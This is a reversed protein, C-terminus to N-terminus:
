RGVAKLLAGTNSDLENRLTAVRGNLRKIVQAFQLNFDDTLNRDCEEIMISLRQIRYVSSALRLPDGMQVAVSFDQCFAQFEDIHTRLRDHSDKMFPPCEVEALGKQAQSTVQSLQGAYLAYDQMGTTSEAGSFETFPELAEEMAFYYDFITKMDNGADKLEAFYTKAAAITEDYSEEDADALQDVKAALTDIQEIQTNLQNYKEKVEEPDNDPPRDSEKGTKKYVDYQKEYAASEDLQWQAISIIQTSNQASADVSQAVAELSDALGAQPSACGTLLLAVILFTGLIRNM